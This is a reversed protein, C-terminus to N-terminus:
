KLSAVDAREDNKGAHFYPKRARSGAQEGAREAGQRLICVYITPFSVIDLTWTPDPTARIINNWESLKIAISNYRFFFFDIWKENRHYHHHYHRVSRCLNRYNRLVNFIKILIEFM